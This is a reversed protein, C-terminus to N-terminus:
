DRTWVSRLLVTECFTFMTADCLKPERKHELTLNRLTQPHFGEESCVVKCVQKRGRNKLIVLARIFDQHLLRRGVSSQSDEAALAKRM